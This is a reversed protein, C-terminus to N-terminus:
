AGQNPDNCNLEMYAGFYNTIADIRYRKGEASANRKYLLTQKEEPVGGGTPFVENRVTIKVKAELRWGGEDIRKGGFEPGGTCPYESGAWIITTGMSAESLALGELAMAVMASQDTPEDGTTSIEFPM